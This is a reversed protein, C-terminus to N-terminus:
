RPLENYARGRYLRVIGFIIAVYAYGFIISYSSLVAWATAFQSIGTVNAKMSPILSVVLILLPFIIVMGIPSLLLAKRVQPEDKKRTWWFLFCGIVLYPIGGIIGSFAVFLLITGFVGTDSNQLLKLLPISVVPILLPLALLYRYTNEIKPM